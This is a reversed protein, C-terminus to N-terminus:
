DVPLAVRWKEAEAVIRHLREVANILYLVGYVKDGQYKKVLSQCLKKVGFHM